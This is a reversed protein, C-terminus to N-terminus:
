GKDAPDVVTKARRTLDRLNESLAILLEQTEVPLSKAEWITMAQAEFILMAMREVPTLDDHNRIMWGMQQANALPVFFGGRGSQSKIQGDVIAAWALHGDDDIAYIPRNGDVGEFALYEDLNM